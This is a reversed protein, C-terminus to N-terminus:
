EKLSLVVIFGNYSSTFNRAFEECLTFLDCNYGSSDPWLTFLLVVDRFKEFEHLRYSIPVFWVCKRFYSFYIM